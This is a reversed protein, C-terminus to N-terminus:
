TYLNVLQLHPEDVNGDLLQLPPRLQPNLPQMRWLRLMLLRM